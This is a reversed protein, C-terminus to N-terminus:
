DYDPAEPEYEEIEEWSVGDGDWLVEEELYAVIELDFPNVEVPEEKDEFYEYCAIEEIAIDDIEEEEPYGPDGNRMYMKGPRYYYDGSVRCEVYFKRKDYDVDGSFNGYIRM